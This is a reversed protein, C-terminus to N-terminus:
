LKGERAKDYAAIAAKLRARRPDGYGLARKDQEELTLPALTARAAEVVAEATNVPGHLDVGDCSAQVKSNADEGDVIAVGRKLM